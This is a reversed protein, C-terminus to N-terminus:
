PVILEMTQRDSVFILKEVLLREGRMVLVHHKGPKISFRLVPQSTSEVIGIKIAPGYDIQVTSDTWDGSFSLYGIEESSVVGSKIGCSSILLIFVCIILNKAM